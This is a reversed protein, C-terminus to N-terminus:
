IAVPACSFRARHNLYVHGAGLLRLALVARAALPYIDETSALLFNAPSKPKSTEVILVFPSAAGGASWDESLRDLDVQDWGLRQRLWDFSRGRISVGHGLDAVDGAYSFNNLNAVGAFRWNPQSTEAVLATWTAEFAAQIDSGSDLRECTNYVFQIALRHANNSGYVTSIAPDAQLAAVAGAFTAVETIPKDRSADRYAIGHRSRSLSGRNPAIADCSDQVLGLLASRTADTLVLPRRLQSACRWRVVLSEATMCTPCPVVGGTLWTRLSAGAAVPILCKEGLPKSRSRQGQGAATPQGARDLVRRDARGGHNLGHTHIM